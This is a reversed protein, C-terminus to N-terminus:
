RISVRGNPQRDLSLDAAPAPRAFLYGQLEDSGLDTLRDAQEITEVGEATIRLGLLHGTEIILRVLSGASEDATFSRDIKLIDAPLIRLHELSTYGTGFDDIAVRVGLDRLLGLNRAADHIDRFLASETVEIVVLSPDVGADRIPGVIDAVFSEVSLHRGSVNIHVPTNAFTDHDAWLAIQEVAHALVWNDLEVILDSREAIPIFEDPFTMSGDPRRWRVLAELSVLRHHADVIPQYFLVLEDNELARHLDREIETRHLLEGHLDEDCLQIRAGGMEKVKYVALDADRLLEDAGLKTTEDALAVGISASVRVTTSGVKIPRKIQLMLREALALAGTPGDVPEAVFIFEDGGLRGIFDGVRATASLRDSVVRLVIDGAQHGHGDNVAKFDDLDLFMIALMTGSRRARELGRELELLSAKRNAIGTLADHTAEHALRRKFGESENISSALTTVAHHLSQGLLGPTTEMLAPSELEGLALAGAQREALEIHAEAENLALMAQRVERPGSPKLPSSRDGDRLRQAGSALQRLPKGIARALGLAFLLSTLAVIAIRLRANRTAQAAMEELAGSTAQVDAASASVLAVHKASSLNVTRFTAATADLQDLIRGIDLDGNGSIVPPDALLLDVSERFAIVETSNELEALAGSTETEAGTIRELEGMAFMYAGRQEILSQMAEPARVADGFQAGFYSMLQLSNMQRAHASAELMGIAVVLQSGNEIDSAAALLRDFSQANRVEVVAALDGYADNLESVDSGNDTRLDDLATEIEPWGVEALLRDVEARATRTELELDVGILSTAVSPDFGFTEVGVVATFWTREEILRTQLEVLAVLEQASDAVTASQERDAAVADLENFAFWAAGSLPVFALLLVWGTVGFSRLRAESM